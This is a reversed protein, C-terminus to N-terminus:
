IGLDLQSDVKKKVVRTRQPTVSVVEGTKLYVLYGEIEPYNMRRLLEMYEVVQKQDAKVANGTKFDVLICKRDSIMLRDIRSEQGGPVLIPVETKVEWGKGFWSRIQPNEFLLNLQSELVEKEPATIVGEFLMASTVSPVDEITIIRSLVNHIHIGYTAREQSINDEEFFKAGDNRIVLKHRWPSVHYQKLSVLPEGGSTHEINTSPWEGSQFVGKNADYLATLADSHNISKLLLSGVHKRSSKVAADPAMIVMGEEARTFAVYLLNLNDLYSRTNELTYYDKFYTKALTSSYKVPLFGADKFVSEESKVWLQPANYTDHDVPWACFPIIVYRFQLGKSKHISIVQAADAQASVPISKKEKNDEWWELFAGLDNRERTFFDLVLNQFAQLFVVEGTQEGLNFISILTETLEFLPLKKLAAKERTFAHPLSSEFISQNTVAFVESMPRHPDFIRAFEFALQARAIDDNPNLLYKLAGELLNVSAASNIRLSESSIVDYKYGPKAQMSNKHNLLHAIIEQGEENKRVLIAVDRLPIGHDQFSELYSPILNLANEKWGPGEKDDPLFQVKAIGSGSRSVKQRVDAYADLPVSTVTEQAVIASATEFFSNNFEVVAPSSRYNSDLNEVKVRDKGINSEVQTQLLNLDGGRWRYIAQKVDGVVLSPYGQDLGNLLLPLFNSWQLGSTDQFEDILYNKYFSGVKEYIFPTDSDQIVGNLFKPADALLMLNQEDKYEKLKRSIDAVLGFVYLNQLALEASLAETAKSEITSILDRLLPNLQTEAVSIIENAFATKKAPWQSADEAFTKVRVGPEKVDKVSRAAACSGLFGQIGSNSGWNIDSVTWKQSQFIELAQRATSNIERLFSYKIESLRKKLERFFSQDATKKAVDDEVAKFEERFIERSFEILSYRVDWAKENELNEGAFDVVWETLAKNQGLEDILSDVVEELVPEHDIELRYDGTLGAERTFSRIVKQFFADITSISFHSYEHLIAAQVEQANQQFTADDLNLERKLEAALDGGRGNAFDDLYALIRDKM